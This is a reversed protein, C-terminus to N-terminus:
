SALWTWVVKGLALAVVCGVLGIFIWVALDVQKKFEKMGESMRTPKRFLVSRVFLFVPIAAAIFAFIKFLMIDGDRRTQAITVGAQRGGVLPAIGHITQAHARASQSVGKAM